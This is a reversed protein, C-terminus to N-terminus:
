DSAAIGSTALRIRAPFEQFTQWSAFFSSPWPLLSLSLSLPSVSVNLLSFLTVRLASSTGSTRDV